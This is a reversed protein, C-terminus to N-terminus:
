RYTYKNPTTRGGSELVSEAEALAATANTRQMKAEAVNHAIAAQTYTSNYIAIYKADPGEGVDWGGTASIAASAAASHLKQSDYVRADGYNPDHPGTADYPSKPITIYAM